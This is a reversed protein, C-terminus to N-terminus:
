AVLQILNLLESSVCKVDMHHIVVNKIEPIKSVQDLNRFMVQVKFKEEVILIEFITDSPDNM